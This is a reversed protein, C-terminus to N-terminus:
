FQGSVTLAVFTGRSRDVQESGTFDDSRDSDRFFLRTREFEQRPVRSARLRIKVGLFRTTEVFADFQGNEREISIEDAFINEERNFAEYGIGWAIREKVLDQRFDINIVPNTLGTIDRIQGDLPDTFRSDITEAQIELLGGRIVGKLPLSANMNLGWVRATGANGLGPVESPLIIQELVDSRWEHFAEVNLAARSKTRLDVSLSLRDTTEPSLDPNGGLFRDDAASASAAFNSFDLQGIIRRAALRTQFNSAVNYILTLSPKLFTFTQTNDAGGTVMLRSAELALGSEVTLKPSVTWILNSFAEGRVEEVLVSAAPLDIDRAGEEDEIRLALSSDLRNYAAEIGIEGRLTKGGRSLTTRFITELPRSDQLFTAISNTDGVPTQIETITDESADEGSVLSLIKWTLGSDYTRTWDGGLEFSYNNEDFDILQATDPTDNEGPIRGFFGLRETDSQFTWWGLQGNLTLRGGAFARRAESSLFTERYRAPRDERQFLTPNGDADRNDRTGSLPFREWEFNFRTTTDWAGFQRSMTAQGFQNINGDPARELTAFFAGSAKGPIRIVNAIVGQGAAEGAGASGRIVEIRDVQSSPIRRLAEALGLSKASPRAGDILVNGATGGFGRLEAGTDLVFGPIRRVMGLATQPVFQDFFAKPYVQKSGDAPTQPTATEPPLTREDTEGPRDEQSVPTEAPAQDQARVPQATTIHIACATLFCATVAGNNHHGRFM